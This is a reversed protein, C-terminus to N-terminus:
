KGGTMQLKALAIGKRIAEMRSAAAVKFCGVWNAHRNDYNTYGLWLERTGNRGGARAVEATEEPWYYVCVKFEKM